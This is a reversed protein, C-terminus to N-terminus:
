QQQKGPNSNVQTTEDDPLDEDEGTEGGGETRLTGSEEDEDTGPAEIRGPEDANEDGDTEDDAKNGDAEQLAKDNLQQRKRQEDINPQQNGRDPTNPMVQDELPTGLHLARFPSLPGLVDCAPLRWNRGHICGLFVFEIGPLDGFQRRRRHRAPEAPQTDDSGADDHEANRDSATLEQEPGRHEHLVAQRQQPHGRDRDEELGDEVRFHHAVDDRGALWDDGTEHARRRGGGQPRPDVRQEIEQLGAPRRPRGSRGTGDEIQKRSADGPGRVDLGDVEDADAREQDADGQQQDASPDLARQLNEVPNEDAAHESREQYEGHQEHGAARPACRRETEDTEVRRSLAEYKEGFADVEEQETRENCEGARTTNRVEREAVPRAVLTVAHALVRAVNRGGDAPM